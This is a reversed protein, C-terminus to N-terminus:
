YLIPYLGDDEHYGYAVGNISATMPKVPDHLLLIEDLTEIPLVKGTREFKSPGSHYDHRVLFKAHCLYEVIAKTNQNNGRIKNPFINKLMERTFLVDRYNSDILKLAETIMSDPDHINGLHIRRLKGQTNVVFCSIDDKDKKSSCLVYQSVGQYCDHEGKTYYFPKSFKKSVLVEIPTQSSDTFHLASVQRKADTIRSNPISIIKGNETTHEVIFGLTELNVIAKLADVLSFKDPLSGLFKKKKMAYGYKLLIRILIKEIKNM